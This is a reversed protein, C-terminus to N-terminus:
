ERPCRLEREFRVLDAESLRLRNTPTLPLEHPM